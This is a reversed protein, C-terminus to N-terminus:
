RPTIEYQLTITYEDMESRVLRQDNPTTYYKINYYVSQNNTSNGRSLVQPLNSLPKPAIFAQTGSSTPDLVVNVADLPFTNGRPSIFTNSASKVSIQYDTTSTVVLGDNYTVSAGNVYDTLSSLSLVGNRAGASVKISYNNELPPTGSLNQHVQITYSVNTTGIVENNAGYLTFQIPFTYQPSNTKLNTLYNGGLVNLDFIMRFDYYSNNTGKNYLPANALPVLFVEAGNMLIANNVAGIEGISPLPGPDRAQGSIYSPHMSVKEAPFYKGSGNMIPTARASIKWNSLNLYGNCDVRLTIAGSQITGEYSYVNLHTNSWNSFNPTQGSANLNFVFFTVLVLIEKNMISNYSLRKLITKTEM